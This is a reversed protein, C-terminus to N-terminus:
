RAAAFQTLTPANVAQVASATTHLRCAAFQKARKDSMTRGAREGCVARSATDIRDLLAAAGQATGLDVDAVQVSVAKVQYVGSDTPAAASVTISAPQAMAPVSLIAALAAASLIRHM